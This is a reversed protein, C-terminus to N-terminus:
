WDDTRFPSAPLGNKNVLWAQPNNTWDLRAAMPEKLGNASLVVTDGEIRAHAAAFKRDAGAITFVNNPEGHFALGDANVFRIRLTDGTAVVDKRIPGSDGVEGSYVQNMAIMALRKGVDRKNGPHLNQPDGIDITVAMGVQPLELAASQADRLWAWSEGTPDNKQEFNPLQVFLFPLNPQRFDRRWQSIMLPFLVKYEAPRPVNGEGQYWLIGALAFPELPYIFGNYLGSPKNRDSDVWARTPRPDASQEAAASSKHRLTWAALQTRYEEARQLYGSKMREWEKFGTEAAPTSAMVDASIWGEIPSGGLSAKIIGVPVKLERQLERSFYYGVATFGGANNPSCAQWEGDASETPEELISANVDFYRILPLNARAIEEQARDTASLPLQMNSQGSCLWVEGVLVDDVVVSNKGKAVLSSPASNEKLPDLWVMWRGTKDATTAKSQNAFSVTVHEDPSALGWVPVPKGRQLVAGNRFLTALTIDGHCTSALFLPTLIAFYCALRM